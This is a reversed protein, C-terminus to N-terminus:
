GKLRIPQSGRNKVLTPSTMINMYLPITAIKVFAHGCLHLCLRYIHMNLM